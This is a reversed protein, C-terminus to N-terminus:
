SICCVTSALLLQSSYYLPLGVASNIFSEKVFRSRAVFIDSAAFGLAGALLLPLGSGLAAVSALAVMGSIVLIYAIVPLRYNRPLHPWLWVLVALAAPLLLLGAATTLGVSVPLKLFAAIYAAHGLLFAGIGLKFLLSRGRPLLLMDGLWCLLLGTFLMRGYESSSAGWLWAAWLFASSATLKSVARVPSAGRYVAFLLAAVALFCLLLPFIQISM